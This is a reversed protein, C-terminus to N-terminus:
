GAGAAHRDAVATCLAHDQGLSTLMRAAEHMEAARRAGHRSVRDRATTEMAAWDLGPFSRHLSACLIEESGVARAADFASLLIAEMGKVVVSRCLKASAALGYATGLATADLGAAALRAALPEATPGCLLLPVRIGSAPVTDMAVGEVMDAGRASVIRAIERKAEPGVSNLDLWTQGPGLHSAARTAAAIASSATVLSVVLAAGAVAEAPSACAVAGLPAATADIERAGAPTESKIDFATIRRTGAAHFGHAFVAGAEGLGIIAVSEFAPTGTM